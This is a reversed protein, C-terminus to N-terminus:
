ADRREEYLTKDDLAREGRCVPVFGCLSRGVRCAGTNRPWQGTRESWQIQLHTAWLDAQAERLEDHLRVEIRRAFYEAPKQRIDDAVRRFFEDPTEAVKHARNVQYPRQGPTHMVDYIVGAPEIGLAKAGALYDGVQSSLRVASWYLPDDLDSSTTKLENIYVAGDLEVVADLRAQFGRSTAAAGTAPNILATEIKEEVHLVRIPADKWRVHYGTMLARARAQEFPDAEHAIIAKVAADLDCGTKLWAERGAHMTLGFRLPAPEHRPRIRKVSEFYDLRPCRRYRSARSTSLLPLRRPIKGEAIAQDMAEFGDARGQNFLDLNM